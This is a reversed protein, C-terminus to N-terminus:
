NSWIYTMQVERWVSLGELVEDSVYTKLFVSVFYMFIVESGSFRRDHIYGFSVLYLLMTVILHSCSIM